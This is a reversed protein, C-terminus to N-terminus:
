QGIGVVRPRALRRIATRAPREVWTYTLWAFPIVSISGAAALMLAAVPGIPEPHLLQVLGLEIPRFPAHILYISYSIVGLFYPLPRSLLVAIRGTNRATAAVLLPFLLALPLDLRLALLALGSAYLAALVWESALLRAFRPAAFLRYAAMGLIFEAACRIMAHLPDDSGLGLRPHLSAVYALLLLAISVTVLRGLRGARFMAIVLLPFFFYVAFECSVSWSPANVNRGVGLGQLMALNGLLDGATPVFGFFVNHGVMTLSLQALLLMAVLAFTHLPLIRAIRKSLFDGYNRWSPSKFSELYTYCMIFGSLVFFFDVAMYGHPVLSPITTPTLSQATASFHQAVVAMAAIGRLSTLPKIERRTPGREGM